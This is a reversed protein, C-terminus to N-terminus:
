RDLATERAMNVAQVMLHPNMEINRKLYSFTRPHAEVSVVCGSKGVRQAAFLSLEGINAGVDVFTDGPRLIKGIVRHDEDSVHSNQWLATSM